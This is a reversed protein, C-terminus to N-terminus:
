HTTEKRSLLISQIQDLQQHLRSIENNIERLEPMVIERLARRTNLRNSIIDHFRFRNKNEVDSLDKGSDLWTSYAGDEDISIKDQKIKKPTPKRVPHCGVVTGDYLCITFYYMPKQIQRRM